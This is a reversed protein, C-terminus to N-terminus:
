SIEEISFLRNIVIDEEKKIGPFFVRFEEREPNMIENDIIM